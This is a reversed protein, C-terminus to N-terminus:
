CRLPLLVVPRAEGPATLFSDLAGCETSLVHDPNLTYCSSKGKIPERRQSCPCYTGSSESPSWFGGPEHDPRPSSSPDLSLPPAMLFM